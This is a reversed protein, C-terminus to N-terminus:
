RKLLEEFISRMTADLMDADHIVRIRAALMRQHLTEHRESTAYLEALFAGRAAEHEDVADLFSRLAEKESPMLRRLRLTRAPTRM